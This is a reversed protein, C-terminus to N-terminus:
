SPICSIGYVDGTELMCNVTIKKTLQGLPAATVPVWTDHSLLSVWTWQDDCSGGLWLCEGIASNLTRWVRGWLSLHPSPCSPLVLPEAAVHSTTPEPEAPAWCFLGRPCTLLRPSASGRGQHGTGWFSCSVVGLCDYRWPEVWRGAQIGM